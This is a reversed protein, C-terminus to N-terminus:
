PLQLREKWFECAVAGGPILLRKVVLAAIITAVAPAVAFSGILVSSMAAAVAVDSLGVSKLLSERDEKDDPDGGCMVKYLERNWRDLIRRGLTVLDSMPGMVVGEYTPTAAYDMADLRGIQVAKARIGLQALLADEDSDKGLLSSLTANMDTQTGM